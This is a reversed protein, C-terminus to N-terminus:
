PLKIQDKLTINPKYLLFTFGVKSILNSNTAEAMEAAVDSTEDPCNKLVRVKILERRNFTEETAAICEDSIGDKGIHMIPELTQGLGRLHKKQKSTLEM